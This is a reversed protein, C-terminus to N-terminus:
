KFVQLRVIDVSLVTVTINIYLKIPYNTRTWHTIRLTNINILIKEEIDAIQTGHSATVM